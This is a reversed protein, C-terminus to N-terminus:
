AATAGLHLCLLRLGRAPGAANKHPATAPHGHLAVLFRLRTPCLSAPDPRQRTGQRGRACRGELVENWTRSRLLGRLPETIHATHEVGRPVVVFSGPGAVVKRDPPLRVDVRRRKHLLGRRHASPNHM